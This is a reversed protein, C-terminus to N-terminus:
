PAGPECTPGANMLDLINELRTVVDVMLVGQADRGAEPRRQGHTAIQHQQRGYVSHQLNSKGLNM